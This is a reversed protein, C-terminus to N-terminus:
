NYYFSHITNYDIQTPIETLSACGCARHLFFFFFNDDIEIPSLYSIKSYKTM